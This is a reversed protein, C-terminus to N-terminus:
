VNKKSFIIIIFSILWFIIIINFNIIALLFGPKVIESIVYFIIILSFFYFLNSIVINIKKLCLNM